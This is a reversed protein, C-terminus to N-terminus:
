LAKVGKIVTRESPQSIVAHQIDLSGVLSQLQEVLRVLAKGRMWFPHYGDFVPLWLEYLYM